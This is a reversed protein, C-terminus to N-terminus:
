GQPAPKAVAHVLPNRSHIGTPMADARSVAAQFTAADAVSAAPGFGGEGGAHEIKGAPHGGDPASLALAVPAPEVTLASAAHVVEVAPACRRTDFDRGGVAGVLMVGVM